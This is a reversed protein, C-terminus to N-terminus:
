RPLKFGHGLVTSPTLKEALGYALIAKDLQAEARDMAEQEIQTRDIPLCGKLERIVVITVIRATEPDVGRDLLVQFFTKKM